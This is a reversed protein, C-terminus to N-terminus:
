RKAELATLRREVSEMRIDFEPKTVPAPRNSLLAVDQRLQILSGAGIILATTVLVSAIGMLWQFFLTFGASDNSIRMDGRLEMAFDDEQPM